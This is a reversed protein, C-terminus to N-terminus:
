YRRRRYIAGVIILAGFMIVILPWWPIAPMEPYLTQLFVSFGWLVIAIGIILGVIMGGRPVGFCEDEVRRYHERDGGRYRKGVSYLPAGCNSCTEADDDNKTGCKACYVM